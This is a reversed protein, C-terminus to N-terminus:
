AYLCESPAPMPTSLENAIAEGLAPSIKFGAGSWGSAVLIGSPQSRGLLGASDKTYADFGLRAGQHQWRKDENLSRETKAGGSATFLAQQTQRSHTPDIHQPANPDIDWQETPLGFLRQQQTLPRTYVGTNEILLASGATAKQPASPKPRLFIDAQISKSRLSNTLTNDVLTKTWAGACVVVQKARYDGVSTNVAFGQSHDGGIRLVKVGEMLSGGQRQAEDIFFRTTLIPDAYGSSPEHIALTHSTFAFEPHLQTLEKDEILKCDLGLAQHEAVCKELRASDQCSPIYTSGIANFGTAKANHSFFSLSNCAWRSWQTNHHFGRVFGGSYLTAGSAIRTQEVLAVSCCRQTLAYFASAGIVGGGIILFEFDYHMNTMTLDILPTQDTPPHARQRSYFRRLVIVVIALM